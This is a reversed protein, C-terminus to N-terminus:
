TGPTSLEASMRVLYTSLDPRSLCQLANPRTGRLPLGIMAGSIELMIEGFPGYTNEDIYRKGPFVDMTIIVVSKRAPDDFNSGTEGFPRYVPPRRPPTRPYQTVHPCASAM